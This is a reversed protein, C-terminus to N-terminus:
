KINDLAKKLERGFEECAEQVIEDKDVGNDFNNEVNVSVSIANPSSVSRPQYVEFQHKPDAGEPNSQTFGGEEKPEFRSRDGTSFYSSQNGSNRYRDNNVVGLKEGTEQWLSIARDRRKGNLPIVAEGGPEEAFLAYHPTTFIGGTAHKTNSKKDKGGGVVSPTTRKGESNAIVVPESGEFVGYLYREIGVSATWLYLLKEELNKQLYHMTHLQSYVVLLMNQIVKRTKGEM